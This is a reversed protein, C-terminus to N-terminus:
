EHKVRVMCYQQVIVVERQWHSHLLETLEISQTIPLDLSNYTINFKYLTKKSNFKSHLSLWDTKPTLRNAPKLLVLYRERM